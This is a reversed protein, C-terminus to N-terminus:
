VEKGERLRKAIASIRKLRHNVGSRSIPPELMKGIESLSLEIGQLRIDAVQKLEDPLYGEGKVEYIYRIDEAESQAAAITKNLNASECNVSRNVNNRVEKYIKVNMIEMASSMAGMFTLLDSINESDKSYLFSNGRRQSMKMQMGHETILKLIAECKERDCLFLELQYVKEPDAVFGCVLYIGRLFLGFKDDDSCDPIERALESNKIETHYFCGNKKKQETVTYKCGCADLASCVCECVTKNETKYYLTDGGDNMAYAAGRALLLQRNHGAGCLENKVNASFSM